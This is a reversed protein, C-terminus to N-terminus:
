PAHGRVAAGLFDAVRAVTEGDVVVGFHNADVAVVEAGPVTARFRAADAASVIFGGSEGLPRTARILLAPGELEEWLADHRHTRGYELDELAALLSTRARVRGDPAQELEHSYCDEWSRDWPSVVGTSRIADLYADRSPHWRDLRGLGASIPGLAAPEPAGAGDILVLRDVLGPHDAAVQMAVYAGMSHGVVDIRAAGLAAAVAALDGSHARWGYTGEPTVESRGRGRLDIAAVGRGAAALGAAIPDFCRANASLGPVCVVWSGDPAAPEWCRARVRGSPLSLDREAVTM